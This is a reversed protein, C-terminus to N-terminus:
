VERYLPTFTQATGLQRLMKASSTARILHLAGALQEKSQGVVFHKVTVVHSPTELLDISTNRINARGQRVAQAPYQM